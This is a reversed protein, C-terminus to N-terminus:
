SLNLKKFLKTLWLHIFSWFWGILVLLAALIAIMWRADKDALAEKQFLTSKYEKIADKPNLIRVFHLGSALSLTELNKKNIASLHEGVEVLLGEPLDVDAVKDKVYALLNPHNGQIVAEEPTWYGVIQNMQNLHPIPQASEGGVGLIMGKIQSKYNLLETVRPSVRHPMEDGDTVFILNQERKKAEKIASLLGNTIKSDGVWRMRHDVDMVVQNMSPYHRCVELPEFLVTVEDGAFLGVTVLSGCPLSAMTESVAEKALSLRDTKPRPFDVDRVNMSESIDIIFMSNQVHSMQKFHPDLFVFVLLFIALCFFATGSDFSHKIRQLLDYFVRTPFINKKMPNFFKHCAEVSM